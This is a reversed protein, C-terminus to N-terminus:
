QQVLRSSRRKTRYRFMLLGVAFAGASLGVSAPEPSAVQLTGSVLSTEDSPDSIPSFVSPFCAGTGQSCIDGGVYGVLSDAFLGLSLNETQISDNISASYYLPPGFNDQSVINVFEGVGDVVLDSATIVGLGTDIALTGSLASGDSFTGSATFVTGRADGAVAALCFVIFAIERLRRRVSFTDPSHVATQSFSLKKL